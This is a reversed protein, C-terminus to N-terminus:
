FSSRLPSPRTRRSRRRASLVLVYLRLLCCHSHVNSAVNYDGQKGAAARAHMASRGRAGYAFEPSCTLIAHEGVKMTAVGQDWGKIVQGAGIKFVFPENRKKSSDFVTGDLLRGTYHVSPSLLCRHPLALAALFHTLCQLLVSSIRRM